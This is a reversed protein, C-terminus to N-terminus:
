RCKALTVLKTYRTNELPAQAHLLCNFCQSPFLVHCVLPAVCYNYSIIHQGWFDKIDLDAGVRALYLINWRRDVENEVVRVAALDVENRRKPFNSKVVM